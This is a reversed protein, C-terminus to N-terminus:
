FTRGTFSVLSVMVVVDRNEAATEGASTERPLETLFRRRQPDQDDLLPRMRDGFRRELDAFRADFDAGVIELLSQTELRVKAGLLQFLEPQAIEEGCAPFRSM